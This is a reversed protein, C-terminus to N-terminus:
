DARLATNMNGTCYGELDLSVFRFGLRQLHTVIKQRISDDALRCIAATDAEIRATEGEHRVRIQSSIDLRRIFEEAEDVQRLKEATIRSGCPIRSALCASSPRNWTTLNLWQSLQRIDSKNMGAEVLPHRIGLEDAARRGPRFDNADDLNEGDALLFIGHAEATQRIREFRYKKCVYCRDCTNDVFEPLDLERTPVQLHRVGVARAFLVAQGLERRPTTESVATVALVNKGMADGAARLLFASDVGGSFGVAVAKMAALCQKLHDFKSQLSKSLIKMQKM